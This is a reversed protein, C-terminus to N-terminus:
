HGVSEALEVLDTIIDELRDTLLSIHGENDLLQSKSTEINAHLWEGHAFPVMRDHRGQWVGVPVRIVKLDFGWSRAFALDDDIWGAIGDKAARQM